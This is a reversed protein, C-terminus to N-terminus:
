RKARPARPAPAAVRVRGGVLMGIGAAVGIEAAALAGVLLPNPGVDSLRGPGLAGGSWWALIGLLIGAVVGMGLGTLLHQPGSRAPVGPRDLRQRTIVACAFGILVPVLLGIFGFALEGHPLAGLIPLGPVPGLVTGVPSVTSGVGVAIGPGVLWAAAWAVLNPILALQALTITFGGVIGAQVAEYLGIITAYNVVILAAVAVASVAVVGAFAATGGRVAGGLVARTAHSLARYRGLVARRVGDLGDTEDAGARARSLESGVLVGVAYILTPLLIGQLQSPRVTDTGASLVVLSTFVAYAGISVGVGIWRHPTEAASRGTRMGLLVSLVAFGLLAITIPFPAQAGPLGLTAAVSPDLNVTLDVGNGLLWVDVAGRWFVFWEISLGFHGAWLFTLPVLAVSVGIAVVLLAELAALLATTIRNM